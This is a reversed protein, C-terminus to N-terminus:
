RVFRNVGWFIIMITSVTVAVAVPFAFVGLGSVFTEASRWATGLTADAAEFPASILRVYGGSLLSMFGTVLDAALGIARVYAIAVVTVLSGVIAGALDGWAVSGDSVFDEAEPPDASPRGGSPDDSFRGM